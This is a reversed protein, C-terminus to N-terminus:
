KGCLENGVWAGNAANVSDYGHCKKEVDDWAYGGPYAADRGVYMRTATKKVCAGGKYTGDSGDAMKCADGDAHIMPTPSSTFFNMIQKRFVFILIAAIIATPIYWYKILEKM